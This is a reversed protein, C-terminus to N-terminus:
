HLIPATVTGPKWALVILTILVALALLAVLYPTHRFRQSM